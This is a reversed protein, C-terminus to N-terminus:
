HGCDKRLSYLIVLYYGSQISFADHYRSLPNVSSIQTGNSWKISM